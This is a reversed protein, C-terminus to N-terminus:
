RLGTNNSLQQEFWLKRLSWSYAIPYSASGWHDV